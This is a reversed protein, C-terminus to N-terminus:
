GRWDEQELRQSLTSQVDGAEIKRISHGAIADMGNASMRDLLRTYSLAIGKRQNDL